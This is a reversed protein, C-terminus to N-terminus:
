IIEAACTLRCLSKRYRREFPGRTAERGRCAPSDGGVYGVVDLREEEGSRRFDEFGTEFACEVAHDIMSVTEVGASGVARQAEEADGVDGDARGVVVNASTYPVAHEVHSHFRDGMEIM